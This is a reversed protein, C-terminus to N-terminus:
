NKRLLLLRRGVWQGDRAYLLVTPVHAFSRLTYGLHALEDVLDLPQWKSGVRWAPVCISIAAGPALQDAWSRLVSVYLQRLERRIEELRQATPSAVMNPGLYGESVISCDPPLRVAQADAETVSWSPLEPFREDLWRMNEQSAAVMHSSLDSGWSPRGLLRAEQLVVGTGCFPDAVLNGPTLNILTQALKPPLMGVKASRAPRGYDREAYADVDQVSLTRAVVMSQKSVVVLLEFGKELIQNHKLSAASLALGETPVVLRVSGRSKLQKKLALGVVEVYRRSAQLGYLSLGFPTKTTQMPLASVDIPLDKADTAPGEYLVEAMKIVSGLRSVPLAETTLAAVRGFPRVADAGLLSELEALGFEPQRGLIAIYKYSSM